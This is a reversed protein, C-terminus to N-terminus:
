SPVVTSHAIMKAMKSRVGAPVTVPNVSYVIAYQGDSRNVVRFIQWVPRGKLCNKSSASFLGGGSFRQLVDLQVHSCGSERMAREVEQMATALPTHIGRGFNVYVSQEALRGRSLPRWSRAYGSADQERQVIEWRQDAPFHFRITDHSLAVPRPTLIGPRTVATCGGLFLCALLGSLGYFWKSNM